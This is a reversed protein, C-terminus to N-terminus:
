STATPPTPPDPCTSTGPLPRTRSPSPATGLWGDLDATVTDVDGPLNPFRVEYVLAEGVGLPRTWDTTACPELAAFRRDSEPDSLTLGCVSRPPEYADPASENVRRVRVLTGGDDPLRGVEVVDVRLRGISDDAMSALVPADSSAVSPGGIM